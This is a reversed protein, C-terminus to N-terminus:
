RPEHQKRWEAARQAALMREEPTTEAALTALTTLTVQRILPDTVGNAGLQMWKMAEIRDPRGDATAAGSLYAGGLRAQADALGQEAARRYWDLAAKEDRVLGRGAETMQGLAYEAQPYGGEAAKRYFALAQGYDLTVGDGHLYQTGKAFDAALEETTPPAPQTLKLVVGMAVLLALAFAGAVALPLYSRPL